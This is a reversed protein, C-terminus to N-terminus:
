EPRHSAALRQIQEWSFTAPKEVLGDVTLTWDALTINPRIGLDLVPFGTTLKQGPPLRDTSAIERPKFGHALQKEAWKKSRKFTGSRPCAFMLLLVTRKRLGYSPMRNKSSRGVFCVFSCSVLNLVFGLLGITSLDELFEVQKDNQAGAFFGDAPESGSFDWHIRRQM